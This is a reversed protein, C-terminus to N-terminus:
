EYEVWESEEGPEAEPEPARPRFPYDRRLWQVVLVVALVAVIALAVVWSSSTTEAAEITIQAPAPGAGTGATDWTVESTGVEGGGMRHCYAYIRIDTGPVVGSGRLDRAPIDFVVKDSSVTVQLGDMPASSGPEGAALYVYTTMNDGDYADWAFDGSTHEAPDLLAGRLWHDTNVFYVAYYVGSESSIRGRVELTVRVTNTELDLYAVVSIIDLAPDEGRRGEARVVSQDDGETRYSYRYDDDLPDQHSLDAFDLPSYISVVEFELPISRVAQGQDESSVNVWFRHDGPSMNDPVVIHVTLELVQGHLMTAGSPVVTSRIRPDEVYTWATVEDTGTGLNVLRVTAYTQNTHYIDIVPRPRLTGEPAVLKDPSTVTENRVTWEVRWFRNLDVRLDLKAEAPGRNSSAVITIINAPPPSYDFAKPLILIFSVNASQYQLLTVEPPNMYSLWEEPLGEQSLVFTDIANGGNEVVLDFEIRDGPDASQIPHECSITAEYSQVVNLSVSKFAPNLQVDSSRVEITFFYTGKQASEPVDIIVTTTDNMHHDITLEDPEMRAAFGPNTAADFNADISYTDEANGVNHVRFRFQAPSGAVADQQDPGLLDVRFDHFELARVPIYMSPKQMALDQSAKVDVTVQATRCGPADAPISADIVLIYPNAKGPDPDLPDTLHVKSAGPPFSVGWGESALTIDLTVRFQDRGNGQNYLFMTIQVTAPPSAVYVGGSPAQWLKLEWDAQYPVVAGVRHEDGTFSPFEDTIKVTWFYTSNRQREAPTLQLQLSTQDGPEIVLRLDGSSSHYGEDNVAQFFHTWVATENVLTVMVVVPTSIEKVEFTYNFLAPGTTHVKVDADDLYTMEVHPEASADMSVSLLGLLGAAAVFTIALFLTRRRM